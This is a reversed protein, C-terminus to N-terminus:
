KSRISSISGQSFNHQSGHVSGHQQLQKLKKMKRSSYEEKIALREAPRYPDIELFDNKFFKVQCVQPESNEFDNKM